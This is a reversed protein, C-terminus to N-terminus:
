GLRLIEAVALTEAEPEGALFLKTLGARKGAEMDSPNDGVMVSRELDAGLHEGARLIMGPNPKRMPHGAVRLAGQGTEHYACAVVLDVRVGQRALLEWLRLNFAEFAPWGFYGRAIGSQNTVVVVPLGRQNAAAIVPVIQPRMVAEAPDRPYGTDINITGDRDLFLAPRGAPFVTEGIAEMWLGPEVLRADAM